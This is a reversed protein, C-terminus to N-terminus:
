LLFYSSEWVGTGVVVMAAMKDGEREMRQGWWLWQKWRTVREGVVVMAVM